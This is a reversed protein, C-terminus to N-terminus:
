KCVGHCVTIVRTPTRTPTRTRTPTSTPAVHIPPLTPQTLCPNTKSGVTCFAKLTVTPTLTPMLTFTPTPQAVPCIGPENGTPTFGVVWRCTNDVEFFAKLPYNASGGLPSGAQAQSFHDNYDFWDAHFQGAEM